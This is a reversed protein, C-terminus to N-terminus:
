RQEDSIGQLTPDFDYISYLNLDQAPGDARFHRVRRMRAAQAMRDLEAPTHSHVYRVARVGRTWTILHDGAEVDAARLQCCPWAVLKKRVRASRLPQWNSLILCGAPQLAAALRRFLAARLAHSPIHHLTALCFVADFDGMAGVRSPWCASTLDAQVVQSTIGSRPLQRIRAQTRSLLDANADVGVYHALLGERALFAFLRGNGCGADLIRWPAARRQRLFQAARAFGPWPQVRTAAFFPAVAAYFEQNLALLRQRVRDKM